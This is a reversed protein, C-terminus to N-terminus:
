WQIRDAAFVSANTHIALAGMLYRGDSTTGENNRETNAAACAYVVINQVKNRIATM